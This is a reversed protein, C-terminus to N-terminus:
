GQGTTIIWGVPRAQLPTRPAWHSPSGCPSMGAAIRDACCSKYLAGTYQSCSSNAPTPNTGFCENGNSHRQVANQMCDACSQATGGASCPAASGTPATLISVPALAIAATAVAIISRRM